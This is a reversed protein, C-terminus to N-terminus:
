SETLPHHREVVSFKANKVKRFAQAPISPIRDFIELAELNVTGMSWRRCFGYHCHLVCGHTTGSHIIQNPSIM